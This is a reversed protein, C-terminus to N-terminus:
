ALVHLSFPVPGKDEQLPLDCPSSVPV